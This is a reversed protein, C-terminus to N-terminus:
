PLSVVLVEEQRVAGEGQREEAAVEAKLRVAPQSFIFFLHCCACFGSETQGLAALLPM